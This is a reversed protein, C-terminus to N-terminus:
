GVSTSVRNSKLMILIISGYKERAFKRWRAVSAESVGEVQSGEQFLWGYLLSLGLTEGCYDGCHSPEEKEQKAM